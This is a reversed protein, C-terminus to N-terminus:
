NVRRGRAAADPVFSHLVRGALASLSAEPAPARAEAPELYEEPLLVMRQPDAPRLGIASAMPGLSARSSARDLQARTLDLGANARQLRLTAGGVQESLSAVTSCQWVEMLLVGVVAFAALLLQPRFPRADSVRWSPTSRARYGNM